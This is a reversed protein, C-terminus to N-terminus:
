DLSQERVIKLQNAERVLFVRKKVVDRYGKSAFNQEFIVDLVGKDDIGMSELAISIQRSQSPTVLRRREEEWQERTWGSRPSQSTSYHNLYSEIDGTGWAKLWSELFLTMEATYCSLPMSDKNGQCDAEIAPEPEQEQGHALSLPMMALLVVMFLLPVPLYSKMVAETRIAAKEDM